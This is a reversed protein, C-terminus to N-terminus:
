KPKNGKHPDARAPLNDKVFIVTELVVELLGIALLTVMVMLAPLQYQPREIPLYAIASYSFSLPFASYLASTGLGRLATLISMQSRSFLAAVLLKACASLLCVALTIPLSYEYLWTIVKIKDM